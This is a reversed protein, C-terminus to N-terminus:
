GRAQCLPLDMFTLKGIFPNQKLRIRKRWGVGWIPVSTLAEWKIGAQGQLGAAMTGRGVHHIWLAVSYCIAREEM